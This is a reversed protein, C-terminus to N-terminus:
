SELEVVDGSDWGALIESGRPYIVSTTTNISNAIMEIGNLIIQYRVMQGAFTVDIIQAKFCNDLNKASEGLKILEHRISLKYERGTKVDKKKSKIVFGDNVKFSAGSKEKSNGVATILNTDGIFNAVFSNIPKSYIEKPTGIQHVRGNQMVAIRDSMAMAEGQDHTVYIFTTESKRHLNKLEGQLQLRLKLDLAGLPEDFLLVEPRNVLARAIAVRQRQGGSLQSPRRKEYGELAVLRLSEMIREHASIKPVHNMKLGFAINDYVSMHPFLALHQFVLNTPRKYASAYTVDQGGILIKGSTPFDLGSLMRLLTTKGCGSPGLLSFFEGEQIMINVNDVAKVDGFHRSVNVVDVNSM